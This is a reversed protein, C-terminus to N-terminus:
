NAGGDMRAYKWNFGGAFRRKGRCVVRINSESIGTEQQAISACPYKNIVKGDKIQLVPIRKESVNGKHAKSIKKPSSGYSANYSKSCWELNSLLNNTGDEDKHNVVPYNNPNPIFAEAMLRHVGKKYYRGDKWLSVVKYCTYKDKKVQQKLIQGKSNRVQSLNNIEYLGDFNPIQVWRVPEAEITPLANLEKFIDVLVEDTTRHKENCLVVANEANIIRMVEEKEILEPM